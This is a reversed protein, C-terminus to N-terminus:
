KIVGKLYKYRNPFAKAFKKEDTVFLACSEAFDEAYSGGSMAARAYETVGKAAGIKDDLKAIDNWKGTTVYGLAKDFKHGAEHSLVYAIRKSDAAGNNWWTLTGDLGMTAESVFKTGYIRSWEEDAPNAFNCVGISKIQEALSKPMGDIAQELKKVTASIGACNKDVAISVGSKTTSKVVDAVVGDTKFRASKGFLMKGEPLSSAKVAIKKGSLGRVLKDYYANPSLGNRKSEAYLANITAEDVKSSRAWTEFSPLKSTKWGSFYKSYAKEFDIEKVQNRNPKGGLMENVKKKFTSSNWNGDLFKKYKEARDNLEQLTMNGVNGFMDTLEKVSCGTADEIQKNSLESVKTEEFNVPEAKVSEEALEYKVFCRCNIDEAAVGSQKPAMTKVGSPLTFAEDMAVTVGDMRSHTDRVSGDKMTKWTKVMRMNTVGQKLTDNIERASELHGAERVRGTETRVIRVAKKYDGDLSKAIRRAMTDYRDGMTLGVGIQRKIDWIINKRNKELTDSLTLGAVPNEIAAKITEATVGQLGQLATRLEEATSSKQVAKVMGDYAVTYMDEVTRTIASSVEPSIGNLRREVEELFRANETNARLIEYTLKGDQAFKVYEEAIFQQTDRLLDKYLKRIEKEAEKARHNETKRLQAFYYSFDKAM